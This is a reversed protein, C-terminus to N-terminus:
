PQAFGLLVLLVALEAIAVTAGLTDGTRGGLAARSWFATGVAVLAAAALALLGHGIPVLLAAALAQPAAIVLAGLGPRFAAGLGDPRASPALQAHVLAATRSAAGALVLAAAAHKSDLGAVAVVVLAFWVILALAGFTGISSDRMVELRRTRNGHVGLGDACDALGDLHLAGSVVALTATALVSAAVTGILPDLGARVGGAIAGVLAGVAPFWPAASNLSTTATARLRLPLVTLFTVALVAGDAARRLTGV